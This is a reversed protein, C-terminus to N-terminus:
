GAEEVGPVDDPRVRVRAVVLTHGAVIRLVSIDCVVVDRVRRGARRRRLLRVAAVARGVVASCAVLRDGCRRAVLLERSLLGTHRVRPRVLDARCRLLM